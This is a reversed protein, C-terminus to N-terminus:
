DFRRSQYGPEPLAILSHRMVFSLNGNVPSINNVEAQPAASTFTLRSQLEINRPFVRVFNADALSLEPVLRFEGAGGNKLTEVINMDDRALFGSLDVLLRGDATEAAIEGNWITSYAFSRRVGEQEAGAAGTARFRPNETEALIRTGVRRFVLLRSGRSLARDLGIPASGLGTELATVYIFRGSIGEADPAPLSLLIRGGRRDVHVPLLGDQAETDRLVEQPTELALAPATLGLLALLFLMRVLRSKM